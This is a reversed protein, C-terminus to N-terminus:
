DILVFANRKRLLDLVLCSISFLELPIDTLFLTCFKWHFLERKMNWM